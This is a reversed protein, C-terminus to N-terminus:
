GARAAACAPRVCPVTGSFVAKFAETCVVIEWAELITCTYFDLAILKMHLCDKHWVKVPRGQNKLGPTCRADRHPAPLPRGAPGCGEPSGWAAPCRQMANSLPHELPTRSAATAPSPFETM